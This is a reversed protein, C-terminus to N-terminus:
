LLACDARPGFVIFECRRDRTPERRWSLTSTICDSWSRNRSCSRVRRRDIDPTLSRFSPYTARRIRRALDWRVVVAAEM